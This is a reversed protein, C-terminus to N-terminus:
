SEVLRSLVQEISLAEAYRYALITLVVRQIEDGSIIGWGMDPLSDFTATGDRLLIVRYNRDRAGRITSNCCNHTTVGGVILTDIRKTHLIYELDTGYFASYGRKVIVMDSKQYDIEDWIDVDTTGKFLTSKTAMEPVFEAWLGIDSGDERHVHTTFVILIGKKRCASILRNLGPVLDRGGPISFPHGEQLFANQMDIILLATREPCIDFRVM